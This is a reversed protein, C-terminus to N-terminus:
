LVKKIKEVYYDAVQQHIQRDTIHYYPRYQRTVTYDWLNVGSRWQSFKSFYETSVPYFNAHEFGGQSFCFPIESDVLKQLTNEITIANQYIALNLDFFETYYDRLIQLQSKSFPTTETSATHYSFPFYKGNHLKESRTVSTCQVVVFDAKDAIARDVQQAILLNTAAIQALNCISFKEALLDVWCPGYELDSVCFSDGCIYIL